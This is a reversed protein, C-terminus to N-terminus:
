LPVWSYSILAFAGHKCKSCKKISCLGKLSDRAKDMEKKAAELTNSAFKFVNEAESIKTEAYTAADQIIKEVAEDLHALSTALLRGSAQFFASKLSGYSAYIKLSAEILDFLKGRVYFLFQSSSVFIRVEQQILGDLLNVYGSGSLNIYPRKRWFWGSQLRVDALFFPGNTVCDESEYLTILGGALSLPTMRINFKIGRPWGVDIDLSVEYGLLDIVGKLVLGQPIKGFKSSRDRPSYSVELGKPLGSERLLRPVSADYEFAKLLSGITLKNVKGYFYTNSPDTVDYGMAGEAKIEGKSGATGLNLKGSIQFQLLYPPVPSVTAEFYGDCFSLYKFGFAKEWVGIMEMSMQIGPPKFEARLRGDFTLQPDSIKLRAGLGVFTDKGVGFEIRGEVLWVGDALKINAKLSASVVFQTLSTISASIQFDGKGIHKRCFTCFDDDGSSCRTPFSFSAVLQLCCRVDMTRLVKGELKVGKLDDSAVIVAVKLRQDLPKLRQVSKGTLKEILEALNTEEFEFGQAFKLEGGTTMVIVSSLQVGKWNSIQPQGSLEIEFGVNKASADVELQLKPNLIKFDDLSAKKLPESLIRPVVSLGAFKKIIQGLNISSGTATVQFGKGRPDPKIEVTFSSSGFRLYGGVEIETKPSNALTVALTLSPDIVSLYNEIIRIESPGRFDALLKQPGKGTFEFRSLKMSLVDTLGTPLALDKEDFKPFILRILNGVTLTRGPDRLSFKVGNNSVKLVCLVPPEKSLFRIAGVFAVGKTVPVTHQLIGDLVSPLLNPALDDSSVVVGLEAVKIDKIFRVRTLDVAGGTIQKALLAPSFETSSVFAATYVTRAETYSNGAYKTAIFHCRASKWDSITPNGSAAFAYGMSGYTAVVSSKEITFKDLPLEMEKLSTNFYTPLARGGLWDIFSGVPVSGTSPAGYFFLSPGVQSIKLNLSAGGITVTGAVSFDRIYFRDEEEPASPQIVFNVYATVDDVSLGGNDIITWKPFSKTGFSWEGSLPDVSFNSVKFNFPNKSDFSETGLFDSVDPFILELLQLLTYDEDFIATISTPTSVVVIGSRNFTSFQDYEAVASALTTTDGFFYADCITFAVILLFVSFRM